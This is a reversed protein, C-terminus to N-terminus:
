NNNNFIDIILTSIIEPVREYVDKEFVRETPKHLDKGWPGINIIPMDLKKIAYFPISYIIDWGPSNKKIIKIDEDDGVWGAYSLDSMGMFYSASEYEVNYLPKSISNVKNLLDYREGNEILKNSIHPYYPGSIALVVTPGELEVYNATFELIRITAEPLNIKNLKLMDNTEQEFKEYEFLFEDGFQNKADEFLQDFTITNGVFEIENPTEHNLECFRHYSDAFHNLTMDLAKDSLEILTDIINVPTKTFTLWNFYGTAAEPISADYSKKRDKLNVWVPPPTADNDVQDCLDVNLETLRQINALILSPNIGNYPDSVHSKIGKVYIVPMIKGVSGEYMIAKDNANNFYPESNITLIYELEFENKLEDMLITAELMGRSITEEDPLTLFLINGNLDELKSFEEVVAMQLAIGAKMDATGRGFIWDNSEIDKAVNKGLAKKNLKSKLEDPRLAVYELKKYEHTDVADHHNILVITKKGNGKVLSWIVERKHEDNELIRRGIKDPNQIFYPLAELHNHITKSIISEYFTNTDSRTSILKLFLPEIHEKTYKM